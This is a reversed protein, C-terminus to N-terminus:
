LNGGLRIRDLVYFSEYLRVVLLGHGCEAVDRIGDV